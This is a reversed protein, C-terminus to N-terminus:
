LPEAARVPVPRTLPSRAKQLDKEEQSSPMMYFLFFLWMYRADYLGGSFMTTLFFAVALFLSTTTELSRPRFWRTVLAPITLAFLVLGVTGGSSAINLVLNHPHATSLGDRGAKTTQRFGDIGVGFVPNELYLDWALPFIWERGGWYFKEFTREHYQREWIEGVHARDTLPSLFFLATLGATALVVPGFTVKRQTAWLIFLLAVILFSVTGGRSGSLFSALVFIPIFLIWWASRTKLYFFIAIIVGAGMLRAFTNPGGWFAAIRGRGETEIIRGPDGWEEGQLFLAALAFILAAWLFVKFYFSINRESAPALLSPALFLIFGLVAVSVALLMGTGPEPSWVLTLAMYIHIIAVLIAWRRVPGLNARPRSSYIWWMLMLPLLPIYFAFRVDAFPGMLSEFRSDIRGLWFGGALLTMFLMLIIARRPTM